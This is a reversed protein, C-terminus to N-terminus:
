AVRRSPEFWTIEALLRACDNSQACVIVHVTGARSSAAGTDKAERALRSLRLADSSGHGPPLRRASRARGAQRVPHRSSALM